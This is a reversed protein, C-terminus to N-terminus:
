HRVRRPRTRGAPPREMRNEVPRVNETLGRCGAGRYRDLRRDVDLHPLLPVHHVVGIKLRPKVDARLDIGDSTGRHGNIHATAGPAIPRTTLLPQTAAIPRNETTRLRM